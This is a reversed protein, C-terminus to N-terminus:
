NNCHFQDDEILMEWRAVGWLWVEFESGSQLITEDTFYKSQQPGSNSKSFECLRALYPPPHKYDWWQPPLPLFIKLTCQDASKTQKSLKLGTIFRTEFFLFSSSHLYSPPESLVQKSQLPGPNQGWFWMCPWLWLWSEKLELSRITEGPRQPWHVSMHAPWDGM